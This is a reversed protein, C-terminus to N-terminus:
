CRYHGPLVFMNVDILKGYGGIYRCVIHIGGFDVPLWNMDAIAGLVLQDRWYDVARLGALM